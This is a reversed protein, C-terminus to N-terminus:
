EMTVDIVTEDKGHTITVGDRKKVDKGDSRGKLPPLAFMFQREEAEGTSVTVEYDGVFCAASASGETDTTLNAVTKWDEDM